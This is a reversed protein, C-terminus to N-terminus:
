KYWSNKGDYVKFFAIDCECDTELNDFKFGIIRVINKEEFPNYFRKAYCGIYKIYKKYKRIRKEKEGKVWLSNQYKFHPLESIIEDLIKNTADM